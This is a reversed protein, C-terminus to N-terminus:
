KKNKTESCITRETKGHKTIEKRYYCENLKEVVIGYLLNLDNPTISLSFTTPMLCVGSRYKCVYGDPYKVVPYTVSYHPTLKEATHGHGDDCSLLEKETLTRDIDFDDVSKFLKVALKSVGACTLHLSGDGYKAIYQKCALSRFDICTEEQEWVGLPHRKGKIDMPQLDDLPIELDHAIKELRSMVEKNRTEFFDGKYNVVKLSDTDTYALFEDGGNIIFDWIRARAHATVFVGQIFAKYNKRSKRNINALKKNFSNEDLRKYDWVKDKNDYNYIIEDSFIKTVLDGYGANVLSKSNQYLEEKDPVGKLTTKNKYLEVIFRRFSNNLPKGISVKMEHIEFKDLDHTYCKEFIEFDINTLILEIYGDKCSVVHGNDALCNKISIAKNRSIFHCNFRSEINYATFHILYLYQKKKMYERERGRPVKQFVTSPYLNNLIVFPYSSAIDWCEVNHITRRKYLWNCLVTGGIFAHAQKVYEDLTQPLLKTVDYCYYIEDKMVDECAVRMEGTHTLPIKWMAGYKERFKLLGYFMVDLDALAYDIENKNLPTLPTRMVRYDLLGTKKKAKLNLSEGWTELKLGTLVYSCKFEIGYFNNTISMPHRPTRAFVDDFKIVNQIFNADFSLNHVYIIKIASISIYQILEYLLMAFDSLERGIYRTDEDIGFQWLYCVSHKLANEAKSPNNYDFMFVEGNEDVYDSTTETDFTFINDCVLRNRYKGSTARECKFDIKDIPKGRILQYM